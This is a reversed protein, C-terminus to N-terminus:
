GAVETGCILCERTDSEPRDLWQHACGFGLCDHSECCEDGEACIGPVCNCAPLHAQAPAEPCDTSRTVWASGTDQGPAGEGAGTGVEGRSEDLAERVRQILLHIAPDDPGDQEWGDLLRETREVRREARDRADRLQEIHCEAEEARREALDAKRAMELANHQFEAVIQTVVPVLDAVLFAQRDDGFWSALRAHLLAAIPLSDFADPEDPGLGFRCGNEHKADSQGCWECKDPCDPCGVWETGVGPV